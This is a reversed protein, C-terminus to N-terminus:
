AAVGSTTLWESAAHREVRLVLIDDEQGFAAAAAAVEYVTARETLM